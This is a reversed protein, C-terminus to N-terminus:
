PVYKEGAVILFCSRHFTKCWKFSTEIEMKGEPASLENAFRTGRYDQMDLDALSPGREFSFKLSQPTLIMVAEHMGGIPQECHFCNM